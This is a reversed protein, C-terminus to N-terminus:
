CSLSLVTRLLAMRTSKDAGRHLASSRSFVPITSLPRTSEVTMRYYDTRITEYMGLICVYYM